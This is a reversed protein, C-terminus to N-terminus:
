IWTIAMLVNNADRISQEWAILIMEQVYVMKMQNIDELVYRADMISQNKAITTLVNVMKSNLALNVVLVIEQRFMIAM